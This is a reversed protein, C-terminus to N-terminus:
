SINEAFMDIKELLFFCFFVHMSLVNKVSFMVFILVIIELITCKFDKFVNQYNVSFGM